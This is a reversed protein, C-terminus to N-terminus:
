VARLSIQVVDAMSDPRLIRQLLLLSLVLLPATSVSSILRTIISVSGFALLPLTILSVVLFMGSSIGKASLGEVSVLGPISYASRSPLEDGVVMLRFGGGDQNIGIRRFGETEWSEEMGEGGPGDGEKFGIAGPVVAVPGAQWPRPLGRTFGFGEFTTSKSRIRRFIAACPTTNSGSVKWTSRSGSKFRTYPSRRSPPSASLPSSSSPWTQPRLLLVFSHLELMLLSM